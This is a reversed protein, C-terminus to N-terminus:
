LIVKTAEPNNMVLLDMIKCFMEHTILQPNIEIFRLHLALIEILVLPSNTVEPMMENIKILFDPNLHNRYEIPKTCFRLLQLPKYQLQNSSSSTISQIITILESNEKPFKGDRYKSIFQDILKNEEPDGMFAKNSQFVSILNLCENKSSDMRLDINLDIVLANDGLNNELTTSYDIM